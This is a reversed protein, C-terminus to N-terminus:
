WNQQKIFLPMIPTFLKGLVTVRCRRPQSKFGPGEAGSDLVSVLRSGLLGGTHSSFYINNDVLKTPRTTRDYQTHTDTDPGEGNITQVTTWGSELELESILISIKKVPLFHKRSCPRAIRALSPRAINGRRGCLVVVCLVCSVRLLSTFGLLLTAPWFDTPWSGGRRGLSSHYNWM